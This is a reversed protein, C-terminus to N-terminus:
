HVSQYHLQVAGSDYSMINLLKLQVEGCGEAFLSIGEGLLTPFVTIIFEDVLNNKLFEKVINAGGVLWINGDDSLGNIFEKVDSNVYIINDEKGTNERSFVFCKKNEYPAKVRKYTTNGLIVIGVSDFFEKYGYDEKSNNIEPLWDVSGNKRAIFGDLSTAIYLIVKKKM